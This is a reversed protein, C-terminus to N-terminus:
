PAPAAAAPLQVPALEQGALESYIIFRFPNTQAHM